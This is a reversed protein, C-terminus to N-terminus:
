RLESFPCYQILTMESCLGVGVQNQWELPLGGLGFPDVAELVESQNRRVRVLHSAPSGQRGM